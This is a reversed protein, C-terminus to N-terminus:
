PATSKYPHGAPLNATLGWKHALYGEIQQRTSTSIPTNLIILEALAGDWHRTTRNREKGIQLKASTMSYDGSTDTTVLINSMGGMSIQFGNSAKSIAMGDLYVEIDPDSLFGVTAYLDDRGSIGILVINDAEDSGAGDGTLLADFEGFNPDDNQTFVAIVTRIDTQNNVGSLWDDIGDLDMWREREIEVTSPQHTTTGQTFHEDNGSRDDVQTIFYFNKLTGDTGGTGSDTIKEAFNSENFKYRHTASVGLIAEPNAGTGSNYINSADTGNAVTGDFIIFDDFKGNFFNSAGTLSGFIKFSRNGSNVTQVGDTSEVGDLYVRCNTGDSVVMLFHWSSGMAPVTYSQTTGGNLRVVITTNDTKAISSITNGSNIIYDDATTSNSQFWGCFTFTDSVTITGDIEVHQEDSDDFRLANGGDYFGSHVVFPNSDRYTLYDQATGTKWDTRSADLWLKLNTSTWEDSPDWNSSSPPPTPTVPMGMNQWTLGNWYQYVSSDTLFILLGIVPETIQNRQQVSLRPFVVGKNDSSVDLVTGSAPVNQGNDNISIGEEAVKIEPQAYAALALLLCTTVLTFRIQM